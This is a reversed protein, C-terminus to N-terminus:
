MLMMRLKRGEKRKGHEEKREKKSEEASELATLSVAMKRQPMLPSEGGILISNLFEDMAERCGQHMRTCIDTGRRTGREGEREREREEEERVCKVLTVPPSM